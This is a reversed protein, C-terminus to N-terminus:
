RCVLYQRSQLESTHEESRDQRRHAAGDTPCWQGNCSTSNTKRRQQNNFVHTLGLRNLASNALRRSAASSEVPKNLLKRPHWALTKTKAFLTSLNLSGIQDPAMECTHMLLWYMAISLAATSVM